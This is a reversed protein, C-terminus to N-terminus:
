RQQFAQGHDNQCGELHDELFGIMQYGGDGKFIPVVIVWNLHCPVDGEEWIAQIIKVFLRCDDGVGDQSMVEPDEETVIGCLWQKLDEMHIKSM